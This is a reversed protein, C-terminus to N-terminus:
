GLSIIFYCVIVMITFIIGLLILASVKMWFYRVTVQDQLETPKVSKQLIELQTKRVEERELQTTLTKAIKEAIVHKNWEEV